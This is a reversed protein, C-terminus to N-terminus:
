SARSLRYLARKAARRVARDATEALGSLTPLAGAGHENAFARLKEDLVAESLGQLSAPDLSAGPDSM